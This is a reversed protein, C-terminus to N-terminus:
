LFLERYATPSYGYKNKFQFSFYNGNRYGIIKAIDNVKISPDKVLQLAKQMRFEFIYNHLTMGTTDKFLHSIYSPSLGCKVSISDISLDPDSYESRVFRIIMNVTANDYHEARNQQYFQHIGDLLVISLDTLFHMGKLNELLISDTSYETYLSIGEEAATKKLEFIFNILYRNIESPLSNDYTRIDSILNRIVFCFHEESSSKLNTILEHPNVKTTDYRTGNANHFYNIFGNEYFYCQQAAIVATEYAAHADTMSKVIKSVGVEYHSIRLQLMRTLDPCISGTLQYELSKHIDSSFVFIILSTYHTVACINLQKDPYLLYISETLQRISVPDINDLSFFNIDICVLSCWADKEGFAQEYKKQALTPSFDRGVLYEALQQRKLINLEKLEEAYRNKNYVADCSHKLALFLAQLNLPKEVYNTAQLEIASMLYEKDAYGSIFIIKLDPNKKRLEKALQIGDMRPMRVDTLLLDPVWDQCLQLAQIGDEAERIGTISLTNWDIRKIIRKRVTMEDDAILIKISM